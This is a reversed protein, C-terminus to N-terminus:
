EARLYIQNSLQQWQLARQEDGSAKYGLIGIFVALITFALCFLLSIETWLKSPPRGKFRASTDILEQRYSFFALLYYLAIIAFPAGILM